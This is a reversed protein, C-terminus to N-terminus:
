NIKISYTESGYAGGTGDSVVITIYDGSAVSIPGASKGNAEWSRGKCTVFVSNTTSEATAIVTISSPANAITYSTVSPSFSPSLTASGSSATTSVSLASLKPKQTSGVEKITEWDDTSIVEVEEWEGNCKLTGSYTMVNADDGDSDPVITYSRKRGKAKTGTDDLTTMDVQIIERVADSGIKEQDTVHVIDTHVGNKAYRDFTYSISEDYGTVFTRSSREDVYKTNHETASKSSSFSSFGQMRSFSSKEPIRYFALKEDRMVLASNQLNKGM